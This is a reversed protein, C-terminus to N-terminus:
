QWTKQNWNSQDWILGNVGCVVSIDAVGGNPVVGSNNTITCSQSTPESVISVGWSTGVALHTIFVFSGNNTINLIESNLNYSLQLSLGTANLGTVTGSIVENIPNIGEFSNEFILQARIGTSICLLLIILKM